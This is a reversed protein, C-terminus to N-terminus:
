ARRAQVTISFHAEPSAAVRAPAAPEPMVAGQQVTVRSGRAIETDTPSTVMTAGAVLFWACAVTTVTAAVVDHISIANTNM